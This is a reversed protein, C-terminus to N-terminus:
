FFNRILRKTLYHGTFPKSTFFSFNFDDRSMQYSISMYTELNRKTLNTFTHTKKVRTVFVDVYM